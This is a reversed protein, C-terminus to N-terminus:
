VNLCQQQTGRMDDIVQQNTVADISGWGSLMLIKGSLYDDDLNRTPLRAFVNNCFHLPISLFLIMFDYITFETPWGPDQKANFHEYKPHINRFRSVPYLHDHDAKNKSGILVHDGGDFKLCAECHAASLIHENSLLVGGCCIISEYGPINLGFIGVQWPIVKESIPAIKGGVIRSSM